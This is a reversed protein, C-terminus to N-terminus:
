HMSGVQLLGFRAWCFACLRLTKHGLAGTSLISQGNDALDRSRIPCCLHIHFHSTANDPRERVSVPKTTDPVQLVTLGFDVLRQELQRVTQTHLEIWKFDAERHTLNVLPRAVDAYDPGM